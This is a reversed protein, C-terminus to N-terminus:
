WTRVYSVGQAVAREKTDKKVKELVPLVCDAGPLTVLNMKATTATDKNKTM